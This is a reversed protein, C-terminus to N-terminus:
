VMKIDQVMAGIIEVATNTSFSKPIHLFAYKARLEGKEILRAIKWSVLNCWSNGLASAHKTQNTKKVFPQLLISKTKPLDKEIAYNRFQNKTITEIRINDQDVGFYTGMGLIYKPQDHLLMSLYHDINNSWVEYCMDFPKLRWLIRSTLGSLSFGYLNHPIYFENM